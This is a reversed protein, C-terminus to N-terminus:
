GESDRQGRGFGHYFRRTMLVCNVDGRVLHVKRRMESGDRKNVRTKEVAPKACDLGERAVGAM